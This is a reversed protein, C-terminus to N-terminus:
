IVGGQMKSFCNHCAGEVVCYGCVWTDCRYCNTAYDPDCSGDCECYPCSCEDCAKKAPEDPTAMGAIRGCGECPHSVHSLCGPHKCPKGEVIYAGHAYPVPSVKRHDVGKECRAFAEQGDHPTVSVTVMSRSIDIGRRECDRKVTDVADKVVNFRGAAVHEGWVMATPRNGALPGPPLGYAEIADDDGDEMRGSVVRVPKLAVIFCKVDRSPDYNQRHRRLAALAGGDIGTDLSTFTEGCLEVKGNADYGLSYAVGDHYCGGLAAVRAFMEDAMNADRMAALANAATTNGCTERRIRTPTGPRALWGTM